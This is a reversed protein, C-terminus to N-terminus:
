LIDCPLMPLGHKTGTIATTAGVYAVFTAPVSMSGLALGKSPLSPQRFSGLFKERNRVELQNKSNWRCEMVQHTTILFTQVSLQKALGPQTQAPSRITSAGDGGMAIRETEKAHEGVNVGQMRRKTIGRLTSLAAKVPSVFLILRQAQVMVRSHSIKPRSLVRISRSHHPTLLHLGLPRAPAVRSREVPLYIRSAEQTPHAPPQSSTTHLSM